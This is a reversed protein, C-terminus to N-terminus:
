LHIAMHECSRLGAGPQTPDIALRNGRRVSESIAPVAFREPAGGILSGVFLTQEVLGLAPISGVIKFYSAATPTCDYGFAFIPGSIPVCGDIFFELAGDTPDGFYLDPGDVDYEGPLSGGSVVALVDEFTLTSAQLPSGILVIALASSGVLRRM